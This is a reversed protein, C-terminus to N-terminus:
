ARHLIVFAVTACAAAVAVVAVDDCAGSTFESVSADGFGTSVFHEESLMSVVGDSGVVKVTQWGFFRLVSSTAFRLAFSAVSVFFVFVFLSLFAGFRGLDDNM